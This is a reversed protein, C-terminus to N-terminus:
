RLFVFGVNGYILARFGRIPKKPFRSLFYTEPEQPIGQVGWNARLRLNSVRPLEHVVVDGELGWVRFGM